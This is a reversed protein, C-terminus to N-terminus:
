DDDEEGEEAANIYKRIIEIGCRCGANYEMEGFEVADDYMEAEIEAIMADYDISLADEAMDFADMLKNAPIKEGEHEGSIYYFNVDYHGIIGRAEERTM